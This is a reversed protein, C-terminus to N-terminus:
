CFKAPLTAPLDLVADSAFQNRWVINQNKLQCARYEVPSDNGPRIARVSKDVKVIDKGLPDTQFDGKTDTWAGGM